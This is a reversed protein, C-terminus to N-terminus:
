KQCLLLCFWQRKDTYSKILNLDHNKLHKAMTELKFKRSIETLIAENQQLEIALNLHDLTVTQQQQSVLYMEIQDQAQNYIAQHNFLDLNFNGAFRHNLHQLMNLNFKATIGEADNYAAELISVPKQLDIGLLFYDGPNLASTVQNILRDCEEPNFNGISSGLFIILRRGLFSTSLQELAQSYTAVKGQIKLQPYDTLLNQASARLISDSVDVPVYYLPRDVNNTHADLLYRTKTSSGSGLEVLEVAQTQTMISAAHEKLISAETRTPYYEPLQCIAEFLESGQADYFYRAPIVKPTQSLGSVVDQIDAQEIQQVDLLYDIDLRNSVSQRNSNASSSLTSM